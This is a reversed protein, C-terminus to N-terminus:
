THRDMLESVGQPLSGVLSQRKILEQYKSCRELLETHRGVDAIQHNDVVVIQDARQITSLRHAIILVTRGVVANDIAEQVLHESEADLASTAEDLLLLKPNILLARAIAIRQKQGGSLQIGREGVLTSYGEPFNSIFGHCNATRAVAEIEEQTVPRNVGYTINERVSLGFLQPEQQVYAIHSRLWQLDLKRIDHGDVTISGGTVDYFRLLLSVVTSKGAGSSGCIACTQNSPIALSFDRLVTVDPRSPYSFHVNNFAVNGVIQTPKVPPEPNEDDTKDDHTDLVTSPEPIKPTRELLYFVRSAAGQAEILKSIFQSTQGLAGGITFIYSQFATLEGLSIENDTVLKFGFWLSVFMSGFGVGFIVTFFGSQVMAKFIGYSYTTTHTKCDNPLWCPYLNPRGIRSAYREEERAEAAFSQVTRMAGLAETSYNQAQGLKDQYKRSLRGLLKGFPVCVVLILVVFGIMVGALKPSIWFMIAISVIVKILGIAVEPLAKSTGESLLATDSGLRSVLEGSQHEDFFAIEQKLIREYLRNRTRAVVREGAMGMITTRLFGVAVGGFHVALVIVMTRNIESMRSSATTLAPDVLADYAEALILPNLLGAAESILMLVLALVLMVGEPRALSLLKSIPAVDNSRKSKTNISADTTDDDDKKDKDNSTSPNHLKKSAQAADISSPDSADDDSSGPSPTAAPPPDEM